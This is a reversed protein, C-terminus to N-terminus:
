QRILEDYIKEIKKITIQSSFGKKAMKRGKEGMKKAINPNNLLYICAEALKEPDNPPVLLGNEGHYILEPIGGVNTGVVCKGSAMAEMLSIPLGETLSSLVAVDLCSIIESIDKRMGLFFCFEKLKMKEVSRTLSERLPGDGVILLKANPVDKIVQKMAKLLVMHSKEHSLRAIIGIIKNESTLNLEKIIKSGDTDESFRLSDIGNYIVEIKHMPLWCEFVLSKKVANSIAIIKDDFISGIRDIIKYINKQFRNIDTIREISIHYTTIIAPIKLFKGALRSYFSETAGHSHIIQIRYKKLLKIYRLPVSLSFKRNFSINIPIAGSNIVNKEFDGNKRATVFINYKGKNLYKALTLVHIPGGGIGDDANIALLLNLKNEILM